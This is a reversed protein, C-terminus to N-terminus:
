FTFLTSRLHLFADKLSTAVFRDRPILVNTISRINGLKDLSQKLWLPETVQGCAQAQSISSESSNRITLVMERLGKVSIKVEQTKVTEPSVYKM